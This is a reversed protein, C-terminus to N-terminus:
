DTDPSPLETSQVDWSDIKTLNRRSPDRSWIGPFIMPDSGSIHADAVSNSTSRYPLAQDATSIPSTISSAAETASSSPLNGSPTQATLDSKTNRQEANTNFAAYRSLRYEFMTLLEEM